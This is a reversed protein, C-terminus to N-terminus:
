EQQRQSRKTKTGEDYPVDNECMCVCVCVWACVRMCARVGCLNLNTELGLINTMVLEVSERCRHLLHLEVERVILICGLNACLVNAKGKLISCATTTM